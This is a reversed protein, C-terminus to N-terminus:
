RACRMCLIALVVASAIIFRCVSVNDGQSLRFIGMMKGVEDDVSQGTRQGTNQQEREGANGRSATGM